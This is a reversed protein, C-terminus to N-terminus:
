STTTCHNNYVTGIINGVAHPDTTNTIAGDCCVLLSRYPVYTCCCWFASGSDLLVLVLVPRVRELRYQVAAAAAVVVIIVVVVTISSSDVATPVSFRHKDAIHRNVM